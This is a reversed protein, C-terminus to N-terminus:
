WLITRALTRFIEPSSVQEESFDLRLNKVEIPLPNWVGLFLGKSRVLSNAPWLGM